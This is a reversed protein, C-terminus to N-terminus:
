ISITNIPSPLTTLKAYEFVSESKTDVAIDFNCTVNLTDQSSYLGNSSCYLLM